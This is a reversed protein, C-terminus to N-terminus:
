TCTDFFVQYKERYLKVAAAHALLLHRAAWYPETASNGGTCNAVWQSCRGPAMIGVAYGGNSYTWPENFTIWRKVRDGFEKFCLDVFDRYDDRFLFLIM